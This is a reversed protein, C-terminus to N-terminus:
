KLTWCNACTMAPGECIAKVMVDNEPPPSNLIAKKKQAMVGYQKTSLVFTGFIVVSEIKL